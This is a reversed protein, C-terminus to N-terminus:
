YQKALLRDAAFHTGSPGSAGDSCDRHALASGGQASEGVRRRGLVGDPVPGRVASLRLSRGASTRGGAGTRDDAGPNGSVLVLGSVFLAAEEQSGGPGHNRGPCGGGPWDAM